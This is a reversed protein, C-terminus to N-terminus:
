ATQAMAKASAGRKIWSLAAAISEQEGARSADYGSLRAVSDAFPKSRLAELLVRFESSRLTRRSAALFYRETALHVFDLRLQAAAARLGFGADARGAAVEGAIQLDANAAGHGAQPPRAAFRVGPRTLDNVGRIRAGPRVILGQERAVFHVLQHKRPDLWQGLSAAAAAARPLADAVHFGALECEGRALAALCDEAGHFDIELELRPSCVRALEGLALDHSARLSLRPRRGPLAGALIGRAEGRLREFVPGLEKRIRMDVELVSRGLTTLRAGRGRGMEALPAGLARSGEGLLGWAYRYSLGCARAADRLSGARSLADLVRILDQGHQRPMGEAALWGADFEPGTFIPSDMGIREM